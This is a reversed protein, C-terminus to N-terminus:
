EVIGVLAKGVQLQEAIAEVAELLERQPLFLENEIQRFSGEEPAVDSEVLKAAVIEADALHQFGDIGVEAHLAVGVVEPCEGDIQLAKPPM